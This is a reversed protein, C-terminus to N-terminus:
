IQKKKRHVELKNITKKCIQDKTISVIIDTQMM